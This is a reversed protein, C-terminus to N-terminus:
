GLGNYESHDGIHFMLLTNNLNNLKTKQKAIESGLTALKAEHATLLANFEASVRNTLNLIEENLVHNENVLKSNLQGIEHYITRNTEEDHMEHGQLSLTLYRISQAMNDQRAKLAQLGTQNNNQDFEQKILGFAAKIDVYESMLKNVTGATVNDESARQNKLIQIEHEQSIVRAKLDLFDNVLLSLTADKGLPGITTAQGPNHDGHFLLASNQAIFCLIVLTLTM